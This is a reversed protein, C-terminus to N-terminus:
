VHHCGSQETYFKEQRNWEAQAAEPEFLTMEGSELWGVKSMYGCFAINSFAYVCTGGEAQFQQLERLILNRSYLDIDKIIEDAILLKPSNLMACALSLRQFVGMTDLVTVPEALLENLEYREIMECVDAKSAKKLAAIFDLNEAVTLDPFLSREQTVLGLDHKFKETKRINSGLVEVQGSTFRDVGALIHLLSTKGTGRTGFVGFCEGPLVEFSIEKLLMKRGIKQSLKNVKIIPDM